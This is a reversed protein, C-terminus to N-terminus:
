NANSLWFKFLSDICTTSESLKLKFIRAFIALTFVLSELFYSTPVYFSYNKEGYVSIQLDMILFILM